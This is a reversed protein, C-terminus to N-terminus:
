KQLTRFNNRENILQYLIFQDPYASPTIVCIWVIMNQPCSCPIEYENAPFAYPTHSSTFFILRYCAIEIILKEKRFSIKRRTRKEKDTEIYLQRFKLSFDLSLELM